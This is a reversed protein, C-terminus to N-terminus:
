WCYIPSVLLSREPHSPALVAEAKTATQHQPLLQPQSDPSQLHATHNQGLRTVERLGLESMELTSLAATRLGSVPASHAGAIIGTLEPVHGLM